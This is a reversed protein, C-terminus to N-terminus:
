RRWRKRTGGGDGLAGEGDRQLRQRYNDRKATSEEEGESGSPGMRHRNFIMNQRKSDNCKQHSRPGARQERTQNDCGGEWEPVEEIERGRESERESLRGSTRM